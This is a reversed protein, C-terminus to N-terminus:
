ALFPGSTTRRGVLFADAVLQLPRLDVESCGKQIQQAFRRYLGAYESGPRTEVRMDNLTLTSGGDSLRLTGDDTEVLIDWTQPGEQRWDMVAKAVAGNECMFTLDAAIPAECNEPFELRASTLILGSPLIETVISLANIGPDFVGLGGPAWIWSQGPHWRRVDERWDIRVSRVTKSQLWDRAPAVGAAFRSHWSAFVSAGSKEALGRLSEVESLTAGPPKELFVHLGQRLAQAALEYRVQPPTCLSVAKIDPHAELMSQLTAHQTLDLHSRRPDVGAKLQFAPDARLAPVHQDLAIKGLGVIGIPIPLHM